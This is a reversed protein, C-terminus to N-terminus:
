LLFKRAARTTVSSQERDDAPVVMSVRPTRLSGGDAVDRDAKALVRAIAPISRSDDGDEAETECCSM